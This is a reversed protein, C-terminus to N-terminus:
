LDPSGVFQDALSPARGTTGGHNCACVIAGIATQREHNNLFLVVLVIVPSYLRRNWEFSFAFSFHAVLVLVCFANDFLQIEVGYYTDDANLLRGYIPPGLLVQYSDINGTGHIQLNSFINITAAKDLTEKYRAAIM